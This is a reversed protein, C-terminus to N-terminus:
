CWVPRPGAPPETGARGIRYLIHCRHIRRGQHMNSANSFVLEGAEPVHEPGLGVGSLFTRERSGHRLLTTAHAPNLRREANKLEVLEAITHIGDGEVNAPRGVEIGVVRGAVCMFRYVQRSETEDIWGRKSSESVSATSSALDHRGVHADGTPFSVGREHLLSKVLDKKFFRVTPGDITPGPVRVGRPDSVRLSGGDFYYPVGNISFAAIIAGKLTPDTIQDPSLYHYALGRAALAQLLCDGSSGSAFRM